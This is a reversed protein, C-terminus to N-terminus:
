FQDSQSKMQFALKLVTAPLGESCALHVLQIFGPQNSAIQDDRIRCAKLFTNTFIIASEEVPLNATLILGWLKAAYRDYCFEFAQQDPAQSKPILSLM